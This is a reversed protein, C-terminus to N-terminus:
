GKMYKIQFLKKRIKTLIADNRGFKIYKQIIYNLNHREYDRHIDKFFKPKEVPFSMCQQVCEELNSKRVIMDEKAKQFLQEGIKSHVLVVSTGKLNAFQPDINEIDWFDGISIDSIRKIRSFKCHYCSERMFSDGRYLKAYDETLIVEQNELRVKATPCIWGKEKDKFTIYEVKSSYENEINEIYKKWIISSSVGHCLLECLIIERNTKMRKTEIWAKAGAMQCPTGIVLIPTGNDINVEQSLLSYLNQPNAQIYKSGRMQDRKETDIAKEFRLEHNQYIYNCAIITGEERLVADSLATFVGGSSSKLLKREDKLYCGYIQTM